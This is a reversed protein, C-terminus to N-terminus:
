TPFKIIKECSAKPEKMHSNKVLSYYFNLMNVHKALMTNYHEFSM